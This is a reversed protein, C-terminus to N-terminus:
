KTWLQTWTTFTGNLKIYERVSKLSCISMCIDLLISGIANCYLSVRVFKNANFRLPHWRICLYKLSTGACSSHKHLPLMWHVKVIPALSSIYHCMEWCHWKFYKPECKFLNSVSYLNWCVLKEYLENVIQVDPKLIMQKWVM